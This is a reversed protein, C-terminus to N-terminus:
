ARAHAAGAGTQRSKQEHPCIMRAEVASSVPRGSRGLHLRHKRPVDDPLQRGTSTPDYGQTRPHGCYPHRAFHMWKAGRLIHSDVFYAPAFLYYVPLEICSPVRYCPPLFATFVVPPSTRRVTAFYGGWYVGLVFLLIVSVRVLRRNKM